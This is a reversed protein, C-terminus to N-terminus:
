SPGHFIGPMSAFMARCAPVGRLMTIPGEWTRTDTIYRRWHLEGDATIAYFVNDPAAVAQVYQGWGGGIFGPTGGYAWDNSGDRYGRHELHCLEGTNTVSYIHGEGGSFVLRNSPLGALTAAPTIDKYYGDWDSLNGGLPGGIHRYWRMAGGSEIAYIVNKGGSFVHAFSNWGWGVQVTESWDNTGLVLGKHKQGFLKGADDIYYISQGGANFFKAHQGWGEKIKKPERWETSGGPRNASDNCRWIVDGNLLVMYLFAPSYGEGHSFPPFIPELLPGGNAVRDLLLSFEALVDLGAETEMQLEEESAGIIDPSLTCLVNNEPMYIEFSPTPKRRGTMLSGVVHYYHCKNNQSYRTSPLIYARIRYKINEAISQPIGLLDDTSTAPRDAYYKDFETRVSVAALHRRLRLADGALRNAQGARVVKERAGLWTVLALIYVPLTPVNKFHGLAVQPELRRNAGEGRWDLVIDAWRWIEYDSRLFKDALVGAENAVLVATDIDQPRDLLQTQLGQIGDAYDQLIILKSHNAVIAVDHTLEDLRGDLVTVVAKIEDIQRQLRVLAESVTNDESLTKIINVVFAVAGVISWISLVGLAASAAVEEMKSAISYELKVGNEVFEITDAM